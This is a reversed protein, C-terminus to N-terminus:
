EDLLQGLDVHTWKLPLAVLGVNTGVALRMKMRWTVGSLWGQDGGRAKYVCVKSRIILAYVAIEDNKCQIIFV